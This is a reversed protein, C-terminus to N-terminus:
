DSEKENYAVLYAIAGNEADELTDAEYDDTEWYLNDRNTGYLCWVKEEPDYFLHAGSENLLAELEKNM